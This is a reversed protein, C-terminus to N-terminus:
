ESEDDIPEEAGLFQNQLNFHIRKNDKDKMEPTKVKSDPALQRRLRQELKSDGESPLLTTGPPVVLDDTPESNKVRSNWDQIFTRDEPSAEM